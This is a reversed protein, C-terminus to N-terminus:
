VELAYFSAGKGTGEVGIAGAKELSKRVNRFTDTDLGTANRWACFRATGLTRLTELAGQADAVPTVPETAKRPTRHTKSPATQELPLTCETGGNLHRDVIASEVQTLARMGRFFPGDYVIPPEITILPSQVPGAIVYVAGHKRTGCGRAPESSVGIIRSGPLALVPALLDADVDVGAQKSLEALVAQAQGDKVSMSVRLCDAQDELTADLAGLGVYGTAMDRVEQPGIRLVVEIATPVFYAPIKGNLRAKGEHATNCKPCTTVPVGRGDRTPSPMPKHGCTRCKKPASDRKAGFISFIRSKGVELGDPVRNVRRSIGQVGAERAFEAESYFSGGITHVFDM